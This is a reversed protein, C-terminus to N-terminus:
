IGVAPPEEATSVQTQNRGTKKARYLAQDVREILDALAEDPQLEGLGISLTVVGVNEHQSDAVAQRCREALLLAHSLDCGGFILLFEEGGWRIVSDNARLAAILNGSVTKLVVDGTSHGWQDNVQKFHDIDALAISMPLKSGRSQMFANELALEGATRTLAGTLGDFRVMERLMKEELVRTTLDRFISVYHTITDNEDTLPTITEDCYILQDNKGRNVFTGKYSHGQKLTNWMETYFDANQEGSKLMSPNRGLVETLGYGTIKEFGRNVFEISAGRVPSVSWEVVYPRGDKRYNITSGQFFTGDALCQRLRRIVEGCTDPGQLIRPNQGLIEEEGYGTMRLFAANAYVIRHGGEGEHADTLLVANVSQDLAQAIVSAEIHSAISKM